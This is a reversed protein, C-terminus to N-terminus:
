STLSVKGEFKGAFWSALLRGDELEVITSAHHSPKPRKRRDMIFKRSIISEHLPAEESREQGRTKQVQDKEKADAVSHAEGMWGILNQNNGLNRSYVSTSLSCCSLLLLLSVINSCSLTMALKCLCVFPPRQQFPKQVNM